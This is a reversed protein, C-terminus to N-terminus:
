RADLRVSVAVEGERVEVFQERTGFREHWAALRYRGPPISDIAFTGNPPTVAFYPHDFVAIWAHTWPHADCTIELLGPTRLVDEVPVVQGHDNETVLRILSDTAMHTFRTRHLVPDLSRVNLTGGELVAQVRPELQCRRNVLEYRRELPIRKGSRIDALWVIVGGLGGGQREITRDILSAGCIRQDNTPRVITDQPPAGALSVSGRLSGGRSVEITRYRERRPEGEMRAASSSAAAGDDGGGCALLGFSMALRLALAM